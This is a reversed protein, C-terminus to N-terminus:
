VCSSRSPIQLLDLIRTEPRMFLSMVPRFNFGSSEAIETSTFNRCMSAPTLGRQTETNSETETCGFVRKTEVDGFTTQKKKKM